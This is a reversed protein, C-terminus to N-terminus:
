KKLLEDILARKQSEPLKAANIKNILTMANDKSLDVSIGATRLYSLGKATTGPNNQLWSSERFAAQQEGSKRTAEALTQAEKRARTDEDAKIDRELGSIQARVSEEDIRGKNAPDRLIAELTKKREQNTVNKGALNDTLKSLEKHQAEKLAEALRPHKTLAVKPISRLEDFNLQGAEEPSIGGDALAQSIKEFADKTVGTRGSDGIQATALGSPRDGSLFDSLGGVQTKSNLRSLLQEPTDLKGDGDADLDKAGGTPFGLSAALQEDALRKTLSSQSESPGYWADYIGEPDELSLSQVQAFEKVADKYQSFLGGPKQIELASIQEPTMDALDQIAQIGLNGLAELEGLSSMAVKAQDPPLAQLHKIAPSANLESTSFQGYGPILAKALTDSLKMGGITAMEQNKKQLDSFQTAAAGAQKVSAEISAKNQQVWNWLAPEEQQLDKAAQSEPNLAAEEIMNSLVEDSLLEELTYNQGGFEVTQGRDIANITAAINTEAAAQGVSSQEALDQMALQKQAGGLGVNNVQASTAAGRSFDQSQLEEMKAELQDLSMTNVDAESVGILAALESLPMGLDIEGLSVQSIASAAQAGLTKDASQYLNQIEEATLPANPNKGLLKNIEMIANMDGSTALELKSKLDPSQNPITSPVEGVASVQQNTLNQVQTDIFSQVKGQVGGLKEAQKAKEQKEQEQETVQKRIRAELAKPGEENANIVGQKAQPTAAMKQQHENGGILGVGVATTPAAPLGANQALRKTEEQSTSSLVGGAGRVLPSANLLSNLPKRNM